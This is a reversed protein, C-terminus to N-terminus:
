ILKQSLLFWTISAESDIITLLIEQTKLRRYNTNHDLATENNRYM